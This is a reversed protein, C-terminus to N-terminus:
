EAQLGDDKAVAYSNAWGKGLTPVFGNGQVFHVHKQYKGFSGVRLPSAVMPLSFFGGSKQDPPKAAM